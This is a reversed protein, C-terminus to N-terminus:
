EVNPPLSVPGATHTDCFVRHASTGKLSQIVSQLQSESNSKDFKIDDVETQLQKMRSQLLEFEATKDRLQSEMQQQTTAM